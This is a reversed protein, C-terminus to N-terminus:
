IGEAWNDSCSCDSSNEVRGCDELPVNPLKINFMDKKVPIKLFSHVHSLRSSKHVFVTRSVDAKEAFCDVSELLRGPGPKVFEAGEQQLKAEYTTKM